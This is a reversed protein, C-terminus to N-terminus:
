VVASILNRLEALCRTQKKGTTGRDIREGSTCPQQPSPLSICQQVGHQRQWQRKARLPSRPPQLLHVWTTRKETLLQQGMRNGDRSAAGGFRVEGPLFQVRFM